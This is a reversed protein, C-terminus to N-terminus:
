RQVWVSVSGGNCRFEGWGHENTKIPESIHETLDYFETNPKGVEMWKSGGAGNSMIVAMAQPHEGNGLRTWGIIDWHDFYDYQEGYAYNQRAHLFKDILFRHSDLWIEYGKDKYHAGYYDAYFLCPYGEKRLLILAYALPKFWSEVVSELSQLPQSDHNEVFTVALEPKTQMLTNDLIRRLDYSGGVKSAFHFNYHLPVDVLSMKGDTFDLYNLLSGLNNEWYEGVSFLEKQAHNRMKTLWQEYFWAPIHKVADLRFGDVGTTELFWEGWYDLEKRVQDNQMDLDCGLLFDYNGKELNVFDDHGKGEFLYIKSPYEGPRWNNYVVSDFHWWHWKMSSYKDGRGPFTFKTYAQIKELKGDSMVRYNRNNEYYATAYVEETEDASDKHNLVIDAYIQVGAQQAAKVATLFEEKTGYKTRITGKQDFEGLDFLDYVGYGTDYGGSGGKYAPPLWLATVGAQALETAKQKVETWLTGDSPYYWHFFQMMTGNVYSM